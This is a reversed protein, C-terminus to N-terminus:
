VYRTEEPTVVQGTTERRYSIKGNVLRNIGAFIRQGVERNSDVDGSVWVTAYLKRNGYDSWVSAALGNGLCSLLFNGNDTDKNNSGNILDACEKIIQKVAPIFDALNLVFDEPLAIEGSVFVPKSKVAM